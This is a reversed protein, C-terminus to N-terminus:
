PNGGGRTMEDSVVGQFRFGSAKVSFGSGLFGFAPSTSGEVVGTPLRSSLTVTGASEHRGGVVMIHM